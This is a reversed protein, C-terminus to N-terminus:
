RLKMSPDGFLTWTSRVDSDGTTAKAKQIAEGITTQIGGTFLSKLLDQNISVQGAAETLGSSAWVAVAGGDASKLLVEALGDTRPDLFWGTYCTMMLYVSLQDRNRLAKADTSTFLNGNWIGVSGHGLYNVLKPGQNLNEIIAAKAASDSM